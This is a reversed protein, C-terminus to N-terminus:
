HMRRRRREWILVLISGVAALAAMGSFADIEPVPHGDFAFASTASLVILAAAIIVSRMQAEGAKAQHKAVANGFSRQSRASSPSLPCAPIRM